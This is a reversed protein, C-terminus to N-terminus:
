EAHPPVMQWMVIKLKIANHVITYIQHFDLMLIHWEFTTTKPM